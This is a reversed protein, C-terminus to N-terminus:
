PKVVTIFFGESFTSIKPKEDSLQIKDKSRIIKYGLYIIFSAGVVTLYKLFDQQYNIINILGFGISVLLM